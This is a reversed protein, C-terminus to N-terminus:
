FQFYIFANSIESRRFFVTMVLLAALGFGFSAGLVRAKHSGESQVHSMIWTKLPDLFVFNKSNFSYYSVLQYGFCFMSAFLISSNNELPPLATGGGHILGSIFGGFINFTPARFLLWGFLVLVFTILGLLLSRAFNPVIKAIVKNLKTDRLYREFGLLLGHYIGWFAFRKSAGHWLGSILMTIFAVFFVRISSGRNGGLPIYIYDRIWQSLTIHWRRWFESPTLSFYPSLFNEPLVFGLMRAAGRGMDVYGSFDAWIQISYGLLARILVSRQFNSPDQSFVWDVLPAMQDAIVLKKFFGILFLSAGASVDKVSPKRLALLQPYFQNARVIPGAVLQGFFSKFLLFRWFPIYKAEGRGFDVLYAIGQLTFFSIGVPLPLNLQYASFKSIVWGAYKWFFLHLSMIGIGLSLYLKRKRLLPQQSSAATTTLWAVIVVFLFIITDFIGAWAYFILSGLLLVAFRLWYSTCLTYAILTLLQLIFFEVNSYIM